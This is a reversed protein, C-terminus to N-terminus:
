KVETTHIWVDSPYHEQLLAWLQAKATNTCSKFSSTEQQWAKLDDEKQANESLPHDASLLPTLQLATTYKVQHLQSGALLSPSSPRRPESLLGVNM